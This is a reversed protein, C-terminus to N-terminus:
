LRYLARANAAMVAALEADDLGAPVAHERDTFHLHPYDTSFLLMGAGGIQGILARMRETGEPGDIPQVGIRVQERVYESPARTTWPIERRLGRWGKDFRWMWGPLWGFGSELLVVRLGPLRDFVGEAVLSTLQSQFASAMAVYDESYSTPWGSATPPLGPNGGFHLAVPLEHRAAAELIPLLNRNGWPVATRVPLLLQVFRRDVARREIEAVSEAVLQSPVVISARLRPDRDLWHEVLWDNVASALAVAVDPNRVGDIGYVCNVIAVSTGWPDLLQQQLSRLTTGPPAGDVPELSPDRSTAANAPYTGDTPGRFQSTTAYERWHAAMYPLLADISPVVAHVDVDVIEPAPTAM